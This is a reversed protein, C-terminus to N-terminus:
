GYILKGLRLGFMVHDIDEEFEENRICFLPNSSLKPNIDIDHSLNKTRIYNFLNFGISSLFEVLSIYIYDNKKFRDKLITVIDIISQFHKNDKEKDKEVPVLIDLLHYVNLEDKLYVPFVKYEIVSISM